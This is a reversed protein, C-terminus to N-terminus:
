QNASGERDENKSIDKGVNIPFCLGKSHVYLLNM